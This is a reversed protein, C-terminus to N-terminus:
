IALVFVLNGSDYVKWYGELRMAEDTNGYRTRMNGKKYYKFGPKTTSKLTFGLAYYLGGTSYDRNAYSIISKPRSDKIFASLLRSAGGVISVGLESCYRILEYEYSKDFRSLGFTMVAVLGDDNSLGYNIGTPAGAGQLHNTDLFEKPFYDLKSIHLRRAYIKSSGGIIALLRSKVIDSKTLWDYEHVHILKYGFDEVKNTKDQHYFKGVKDESHWYAGNYEIAIGLDPLVIDLEKGGLISRDNLEIWGSYISRIYEVLSNEAESSKSFCETCNTNHQIINNTCQEVIHGNACSVKVNARQGYFEDISTLLTRNQLNLVELLKAYSRDLVSTKIGLKYRANNIASETTNLKIALERATLNNDLDLETLQSKSIIPRGHICAKCKYGRQLLNTASAINSHGNKCNFSVNNTAGLYESTLTFGYKDYIEKAYTETTKKM